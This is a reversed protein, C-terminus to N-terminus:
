LLKKKIKQIEKKNNNLEQKLEELIINLNKENETTNDIKNAEDNVSISEKETNFLTKNELISNKSFVSIKNKGTYLYIMLYVIITAIVFFAIFFKVLYKKDTKNITEKNFDKNEVVSM